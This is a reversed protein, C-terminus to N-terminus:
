REAFGAIADLELVYLPKALLDEDGFKKGLDGFFDSKKHAEFAEGNKYTEIMVFEPTDKKTEKHLHYRLTNEENKHVYDALNRLLEEVRDAKGEKPTIVAVVVVESM